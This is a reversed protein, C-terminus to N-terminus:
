GESEENKKKDIGLYEETYDTLLAMSLPVLMEGLTVYRSNIERVIQRSIDFLANQVKDMKITPYAIGEVFGSRGCTHTIGGILTPLGYFRCTIPRHEYLECLDDPSLLPCRIRENAMEVVIESEKKGKRYEQYAKKKLKFAQRDARNARELLESIKDKEFKQTFRHNIYLAEALTLDFVAHCCDACGPKCKVQDPYDKKVREVTADATEALAEIKRFFPTLDPKM